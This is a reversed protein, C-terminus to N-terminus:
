LEKNFSLKFLDPYQQRLQRVQEDEDSITEHSVETIIGDKVFQELCSLCFPKTVDYYEPKSIWRYEEPDIVGDYIYGDDKNTHVCCSLAYYVPNNDYHNIARCYTTHCFQCIVPDPCEKWDEQKFCDDCLTALKGAYYKSRTDLIYCKKRDFDHFALSCLHSTWLIMFNPSQNPTLLSPIIISKNCGICSPCERKYNNLKDMDWCTYGNQEFTYTPEAEFKNQLITLGEACDYCYCDNLLIKNGSNSILYQDYYNSVLIQKDDIYDVQLPKHTYIIQCNVCTWKEVFVDM